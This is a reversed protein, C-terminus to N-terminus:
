HCRSREGFVTTGYEPGATMFFILGQLDSTHALAPEVQLTRQLSLRQHSPLSKGSALVDYLFLGFPLSLRYFPRSRLLPIAFAIKNVLHPAIHLLVEREHLDQWVLRFELMRLYRLGGHILRTSRSTTGYAFDEKEVLLVDLGRLAADRAAGAGIIGGGIVILDFIKQSLDGFQRKM